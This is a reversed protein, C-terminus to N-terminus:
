LNTVLNAEVILRKLTTGPPVCTVLKLTKHSYDQRLAWVDKPNVTYMKSVRYTYTINDATVFVDAGVSITPLTAFITKYNTPNYLSPLTSHGFIVVSGPEGPLASGPYHVLSQNLDEGNVKATAKDIGLTPVSVSFTDMTPQNPDETPEASTLDPPFFNSSTVTSPNVQFGTNSSPPPSLAFWNSAKTYDIDSVVEPYPDNPSALALSEDVLPSLLPQKQPLSLISKGALLHYGLIPWVVSSVLALGLASFVTPLLKVYSPTLRGPHPNQPTAKEYSYPTFM